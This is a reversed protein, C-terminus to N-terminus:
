SSPRPSACSSGTRRARPCRPPEGADPRQARLHHGRRAGARRDRDGRTLMLLSGVLTYIVLKIVAAIRNEGHGLRGDPLLVARAHPRLLRRVARPGAGHLAGLVATEGLGLWFFFLGPRAYDRAGGLDHHGGVAGRDARHPLPQARRGRAQLPHGARLDLGPRHRVAARRGLQRLRRDARDRLRADGADRRAGALAGRGALLALVGAILPLWLVISLHLTVDVAAPLLPRRRAPRPRPPGRVRASAARSPACRPRAPACWGSTGGVLTGDVFVREFTQQGFRGLWGFPRVFLIDNLEDFYWKHSFLQYLPELRERVGRSTGPRRVWVVYATL